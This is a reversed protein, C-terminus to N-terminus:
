SQATTDQCVSRSKLVPWIPSWQRGLTRVDKPSRGKMVEPRVTRLLTCVTEIAKGLNVLLVIQIARNKEDQEQRM